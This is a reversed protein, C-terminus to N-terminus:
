PDYNKYTCDCNQSSPQPVLGSTVRAGLEGNHVEYCAPVDVGGGIGQIVKVAFPWPQIGSSPDTGRSSSSSSSNSPYTSAM